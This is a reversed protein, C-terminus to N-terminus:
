SKSVEEWDTLHCVTHPIKIVAGALYCNCPVKEDPLFIGSGDDCLTSRTKFFRKMNKM